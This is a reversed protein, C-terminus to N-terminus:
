ETGYLKTAAPGNEKHCSLCSGRDIVGPAGEAPPQDRTILLSDPAQKSIHCSECELGLVENHINHYRNGIETDPVVGVKIKGEAIAKAIQRLNMPKAGKEASQGYEQFLFVAMLMLATIIIAASKMSRM